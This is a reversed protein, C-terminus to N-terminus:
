IYSGKTFIIKVDPAPLATGSSRVKRSEFLRKRETELHLTIRYDIKILFNIKGLDTFYRLSVHENKLQKKFKTIQEDMNLDKAYNKKATAIQTAIM